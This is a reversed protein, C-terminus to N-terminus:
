ILVVVAAVAVEAGVAVDTVAAANVVAEANAVVNTQAAAVDKAGGALADLQQESLERPARAQMYAKAEDLTFEYGHGKAFAVISALGSAAAKAEAQLAPNAALDNHFREVEAKSM